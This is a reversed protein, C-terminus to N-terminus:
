RAREALARYIRASTEERERSAQVESEAEQLRARTTHLESSSAALKQELGAVSTADAIAALGREVLDVVTSTLTLGRESAYAQLARKLSDPVRAYVVASM